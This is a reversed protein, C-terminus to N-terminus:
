STTTKTRVKLLSNRQQKGLTNLNCGLAMRTYQMHRAVDRKHFSQRVDSVTSHKKWCAVTMVRIFTILDFFTMNASVSLYKAANGPYDSVAVAAKLNVFVIPMLTASDMLFLDCTDRHSSLIRANWNTGIGTDVDFSMLVSSTGTQVPASTSNPILNMCGIQGLIRHPSHICHENSKLQKLPIKFATNLHFQHSNTAFLILPLLCYSNFMGIPQLTM